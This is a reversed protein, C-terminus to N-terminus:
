EEHDYEVHYIKCGGLVAYGNNKFFTPLKIAKPIAIHSDDDNDYVELYKPTPWVDIRCPFRLLSTCCLLCKYLESGNGFTM